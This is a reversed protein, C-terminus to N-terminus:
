VLFSKLLNDIDRFDLKIDIVNFSNSKKVVRDSIVIIGPFIPFVEKWKRNFYLEEYKSLNFSKTNECEIFYIHNKDKYRVALFCDAIINELKYSVKYKLIEIDSKKLESIFSSLILSHQLQSPRKKIYHINESLINAQYSKIYGHERLYKLRRQTPRLSRNFFMNAIATTTACKFDNLFEIIQKDRDTLIIRKM